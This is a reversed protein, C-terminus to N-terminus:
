FQIEIFGLVMKCFLRGQNRPHKPSSKHIGDFLKIKLLSGIKEIFTYGYYPEGESIIEM